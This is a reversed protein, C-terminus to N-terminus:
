IYGLFHLYARYSIGIVKEPGLLYGLSEVKVCTEYRTKLSYIGVTAITAFPNVCQNTSGANTPELGM